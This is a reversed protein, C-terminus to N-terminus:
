TSEAACLSSLTANTWKDFINWCDMAFSIRRSITRPCFLVFHIFWHCAWCCFLYKLIVFLIMQFIIKELISCCAYILAIHIWTTCNCYPLGPLLIVDDCYFGIRSTLLSKCLPFTDAIAICHCVHCCYFSMVISDM